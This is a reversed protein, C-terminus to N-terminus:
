IWRSAEYRRFVPTDQLSRIAFYTTCTDRLFSPHFGRERLQSSFARCIRLFDLWKGSRHRAYRIIETCIFSRMIHPLQCSRPSIYLYKNRAKQHVKHLLRNGARYIVLDLMEIEIPSSKFTLMISPHMNGVAKSSCWM